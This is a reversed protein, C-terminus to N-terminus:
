KVTVKIKAFVGNQAYAYIYCTGRKLGKIQGKKSVTAISVNDSEWAVKRHIKVKSSGAKLTAKVTKSKGKKMSLKTKSLKVGTNNGVKGGKTAVHITKSVALVKKGRVAVVLYKYYTGRKLKKQTFSVGSVKRIKKYKNSKGCKNGYIVYKTAGNVRKWSLKISSKSKPVGKAQLLSFTSGKQDNDNKTTIIIKEVDELRVPKEPPVDSANQVPKEPSVDSANQVPKEPPVDSANYPSGSVEDPKTTQNEESGTGEKWGAYFTYDKDLDLSSNATYAAGSCVADKYWGTFTYGKREPTPLTGIHSENEAYMYNVNCNGGNANFTIKSTPFVEVVNSCFDTMYADNYAENFFCLKCSRTFDCPLNVTATLDDSVQAIRGYYLKGGTELIASIFEKYGTKAGAYKVTVTRGKNTVKMDTIRFNRDDELITFKWDHTEYKGVVNLADPGLPGSEKGTADSRIVIRNNSIQCEPRVYYFVNSSDCSMGTDYRSGHKLRKGQWTYACFVVVKIDNYPNYIFTNLPLRYDGYRADKGDNYLFVPCCTDGYPGYDGEYGIANTGAVTTGWLKLGYNGAYYKKEGQHNRIYAEIYEDDGDTTARFKDADFTEVRNKETGTNLIAKERDSFLKDSWTSTIRDNITNLDINTWYYPEVRLACGTWLNLKEEDTNTDITGIDNPIVRWVNGYSLSGGSVFPQVKEGMFVRDYYSGMIENSQFNWRYKKPSYTEDYAYAKVSFSASSLISFSLVALAAAFGTFKHKFM